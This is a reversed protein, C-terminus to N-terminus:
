VQTVGRDWKRRRAPACTTWLGKARGLTSKPRYRSLHHAPARNEQLQM